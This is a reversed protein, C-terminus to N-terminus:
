PEKTNPNDPYDITPDPQGNLEWFSFQTEGADIAMRLNKAASGWSEASFNSVIYEEINWFLITYGFIHLAYFIALIHFGFYSFVMAVALDQIINFNIYSKNFAKSVWTTITAVHDLDKKGDILISAPLISAPLTLVITIWYIVLAITLMWQMNMLFGYLFLGFPIGNIVLNKVYLM